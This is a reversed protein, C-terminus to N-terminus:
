SKKKKWASSPMPSKVTVPNWGHARGIKGETWARLARGLDLGTARTVADVIGDEEIGRYSPGALRWQRWLWRMVDDLCRRGGSESRFLTTSPFLTSRPPRRIM